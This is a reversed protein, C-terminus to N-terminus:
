PGIIRRLIIALLVGLISYGLLVELIVLFRGIGRCPVIDGYGLTTFTVVSFYLADQFDPSRVAVEGQVKHPQVHPKLPKPSSFEIVNFSFYIFAFCVIVSFASLLTRLPLEGHGCSLHLFSAMLSSFFDKVPLGIRKILSSERNQWHTGSRFLLYRSRLKSRRLHMERAKEEMNAKDFLTALERYSAILVEYKRFTELECDNIGTEIKSIYTETIDAFSEIYRGDMDYKIMNLCHAALCRVYLLHNHDKFYDRAKKYNRSAQLFEGNVEAKKAVNVLRLGVDLNYSQGGKLSHINKDSM